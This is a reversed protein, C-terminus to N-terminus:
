ASDSGFLNQMLTVSTRTGLPPPAVVKDVEMMGDDVAEDILLSLSVTCVVIEVLEYARTYGELVRLGVDDVVVDVEEVADLIGSGNESM